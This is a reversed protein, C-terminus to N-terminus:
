YEKKRGSIEELACCFVSLLSALFIFLCIFLGKRIDSYSNWRPQVLSARSSRGIKDFCTSPEEGERM